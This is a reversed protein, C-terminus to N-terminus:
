KIESPRVDKKIANRLVKLGNQDDFKPVHVERVPRKPLSFPFSQAEPWKSM